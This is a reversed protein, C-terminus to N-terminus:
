FISFMGVQESGYNVKERVQPGGGRHLCARLSPRTSQLFAVSHGCQQSRHIYTRSCACM